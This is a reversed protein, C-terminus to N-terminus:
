HITATYKQTIMEALDDLYQEPSVWFFFVNKVTVPFNVDDLDSM